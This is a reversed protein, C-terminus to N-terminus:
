RTFQTVFVEDGSAGTSAPPAISGRQTYALGNVWWQVMYSVPGTGACDRYYDVYVRYTGRPPNSSWYINEPRGIVMNGCMNDQDLLGLSSQCSASRYNYYIRNGCPDVVWLDLDANASWNLRVNVTGIGVSPTATAMCPPRGATLSSPSVVLPGFSVANEFEPGGTQWNWHPYPITLNRQFYGLYTPPVTDQAHYYVAVSFRYTGQPLIWYQIGDPPTTSVDRRDINRFRNAVEFGADWSPYKLTYSEICLKFSYRPLTDFRIAGVGRESAQRAMLVNSCLHLADASVSIGDGNVRGGVTEWRGAQPDYDFMAVESRARDFGRPLPITTVIPTEFIFGDPGMSFIDGLFQWGPAPTNPVGFDQPTGREVTFLMEGEGGTRTKPVAGRPVFVSAGAPHQLLGEQSTRVVKSAVSGGSGAQGRRVVPLYNM